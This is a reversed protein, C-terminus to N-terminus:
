DIFVNKIGGALRTNKVIWLDPPLFGVELRAKQTEKANM